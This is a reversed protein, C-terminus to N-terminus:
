FKAKKMLIARLKMGLYGSVHNKIAFANQRKKMTFNVPKLKQFHEFSENSPAYREDSMSPPMSEELAKGYDARAELMDKQKDDDDEDEEDDHENDPIEDDGGAGMVEDIELGSDDDDDSQPEYQLIEKSNPLNEKPGEKIDELAERKFPAEDAQMTKEDRHRHQRWPKATVMSALMLLGLLIAFNM